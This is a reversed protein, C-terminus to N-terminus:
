YIQLTDKEIKKNFNDSFTIKKLLVPLLVKKIKKNLEYVYNYKDSEEFM